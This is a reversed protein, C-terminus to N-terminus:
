LGRVRPLRSSSSGANEKIKSRSFAEVLAPQPLNQLDAPSITQDANNDTNTSEEQVPASPENPNAVAEEESPAADATNDAVAAADAANDANGDANDEAAAEQPPEEAVGSVEPDTSEADRVVDTHDNLQGAVKANALVKEKYDVSNSMDPPQAEVEEPEETVAEPAAVGEATPQDGAEEPKSDEPSVPEEKDEPVVPYKAKIEENSIHANEGPKAAAAAQAASGEPDIMEPEFTNVL